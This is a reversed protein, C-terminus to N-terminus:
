KLDGDVLAGFLRMTERYYKEPSYKREVSKRANMGMTQLVSEDASVERIVRCLENANGPEFLRGNIGEQVIDKLGGNNAAVIPKGFAFAQLAVYPSPEYWESPVVVFSCDRLIPNLEEGWKPGLFQVNTLNRKTAYAISNELEAGDGVVKLEVDPCM